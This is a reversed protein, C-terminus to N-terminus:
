RLFCLSSHVCRIKIPIGNHAAFTSCMQIIRFNTQTCQLTCCVLLAFGDPECALLLQQCPLCPNKVESTCLLTLSSVKNASLGCPKWRESPELTAPYCHADDCCVGEQVWCTYHGSNTHEGVHQVVAFLVCPLCNM